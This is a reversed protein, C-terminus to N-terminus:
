TGSCIKGGTSFVICNVASVNNAALDVNGNAYVAGGFKTTNAVTNVVQYGIATAYDATANAQDGIAIASAGTATASNGIYFSTPMSINGNITLTNGTQSIISNNIITGNYFQPITGTTPSDASINARPLTGNTIKNQSYTHENTVTTNMGLTRLDIQAILYATGNMMKAQASSDVASVTANLSRGSIRADISINQALEVADFTANLVRTSADGGTANYGTFSFSLDAMGNRSVICIHNTTGNGDCSVNTTYNNGDGAATSTGWGCNTESADCVLEDGWYLNSTAAGAGATTGLRNYNNGKFFLAGSINVNVTDGLDGFFVTASGGGGLSNIYINGPSDIYMADEISAVQSSTPIPYSGNAYIDLYNQVISKGQLWTNDTINLKGELESDGTQEIYLIDHGPDNATLSSPICLIIIMLTMLLCILKENRAVKKMIMKKM